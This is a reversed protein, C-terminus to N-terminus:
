DASTKLILIILIILIIGLLGIDITRQFLYCYFIAFLFICNFFSVKFFTCIMRSIHGDNEDTRGKDHSKNTTEPRTGEPRVGTAEQAGQDM